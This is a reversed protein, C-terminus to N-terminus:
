IRYFANNGLTKTRIYGFLPIRKEDSVSDFNRQYNQNVNKNGFLVIFAKKYHLCCFLQCSKNETVLVKHFIFTNQHRKMM